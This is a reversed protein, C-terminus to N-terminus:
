ASRRKKLELRCCCQGVNWAMRKSKVQEVQRADTPRPQVKSAQSAQGARKGQRAKRGGLVHPLFLTTQCPPARDWLYRLMQQHVGLDVCAYEHM